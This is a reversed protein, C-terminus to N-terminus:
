AARPLRERANEETAQSWLSGFFKDYSYPRFRGLGASPYFTMEGFIPHADVEYFDVRAFSIDACLREAGWLMKDLTRPPPVYKPDMPYNYSFPQKVWNRDYFSLRHNTARDVNIQIYHAKGNFVFIKYDVPLETRSVGLFPEVLLQPEIATYLWERHKKDYRSALWKGTLDEIYDWNEDAKSFVFYNWECGHNAKLVYPAPWNRRSRPPLERGSWINPNVWKPGLTQAVYHKVLVKDALRPLRPDRDYLKRHQIKENFTQPRDVNPWRHHCRFHQIQIALKDPLQNVGARYLSALLEYMKSHNGM